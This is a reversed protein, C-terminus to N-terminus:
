DLLPACFQLHDSLPNSTPTTLLNKNSPAPPIIYGVVVFTFPPSSGLRRVPRFALLTFSCMAGRLCLGSAAQIYPM